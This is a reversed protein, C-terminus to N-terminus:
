AARREHELAQELYATLEAGDLPVSFHYGQGLECDLVRLRETIELTLAQGPLGNARLAQEVDGAFRDDARYMALDANRLLEDPGLSADRAHAIGVTAGIFVEKGEVDFPRRMAAIIRAAVAVPHV